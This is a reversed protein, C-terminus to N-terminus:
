WKILEIIRYNWYNFNPTCNAAYWTYVCVCERACAYAHYFCECILIARARGNIDDAVLLIALSILLYFLIASLCISQKWLKGARRDLQWENPFASFILTNKGSRLFQPFTQYNWDNDPTPLKEESEWNVDLKLFCRRWYQFFFFFVM